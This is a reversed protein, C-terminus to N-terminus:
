MSSETKLQKTSAEKDSPQDTVSPQQLELIQQDLLKLAGTIEYLNALQKEKEILLHQKTEQLKQLNM